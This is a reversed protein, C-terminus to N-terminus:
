KSFGEIFQGDDRVCLKTLINMDIVDTLFKVSGDVLVCQIGGTHASSLPTNRRDHEINWGSGDTQVCGPLGLVNSNPKYRITTTGCTAQGGIGSGVGTTETGMPWGWREGPRRDERASRNPTFVFNSIESVIMTSSTGDTCRAMSLLENHPLMGASSYIGRVGSDQRRAPPCIWTGDPSSEAGSIGFYSFNLMPLGQFEGRAPAFRELPSSPCTAWAATLGAANRTNLGRLSTASNEAWGHHTTFNWREFIAANELFPLIRLRWNSGWGGCVGENGYPFVQHSDHYMQLGLGIQKLNNSCQMRRAAERAAQVAPLLLGVLIGIIAIVVLLEVLTFGMRRSQSM